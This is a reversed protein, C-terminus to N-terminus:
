LRKKLERYTQELAEPIVKTESLLPMFNYDGIWRPVIHLHIHDVVGAGGARGLNMGVNFGEPQLVERLLKIMRGLLEMMERSEEPNIEELSSIHRYPAIMLHGNNYPFINLMVLCTEGRLLIYNEEDKNERPKECFICGEGKEEKKVYQSRWPAWLRHM